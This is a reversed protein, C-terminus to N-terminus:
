PAESSALRVDIHSLDSTSTSTAGHSELVYSALCLALGLGGRNFPVPETTMPLTGGAELTAADPPVAIVVRVSSDQGRCIAITAATQRTERMALESLAALAQALAQLDAVGIAVGATVDDCPVVAVSAPAHSAIAQMLAAADTTSPPEDRRMWVALESSQRGLTALRSTAGLMATLMAAEPDAADRKRQLLRIYGQLVSLPSRLEHALVSLVDSFETGM